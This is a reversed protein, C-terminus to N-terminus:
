KSSHDLVPLRLNQRTKHIPVLPSKIPLRAECKLCDEHRVWHSNISCKATVDICQCKEKVVIGYYRMACSEWLPRFLWPNESDREYGNIPSPPEFGDLGKKYKLSGDPHVVIRDFGEPVALIVSVLHDEPGGGLHIGWVKSYTHGPKEPPPGGSTGQPLRALVDKLEPAQDKPVSKTSPYPTDPCGECSADTAPRSTM